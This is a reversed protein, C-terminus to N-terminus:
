KLEVVKYAALSDATNPVVFDAAIIMKELSAVEALIDAPVHKSSTPAIGVGDEALGYSVTSGGPFNGDNLDKSLNYIGNDVRKMASTLVNDPALDNQDRDVGIAWKGQEKAAEILGNGVGGAAHFIVDAGQQYMSNAISKGKAADTFSEAYQTLVEIDAGAQKVGAKFGYEFEEILFFKIGGIFGVKGTESMRGAIYGVLYSAQEAEFVVGVLNSPTDEFASDIIAYKQDPNNQAAELIADAMMFGIGWILDIDEDLASEMNPMYDANQKSEKYSVDIGLDKKARQLGEWASQNFSQDNVGGVDTVMTVSTKVVEVAKEEAPAAVEAKQKNCGVLTLAFVVALLISLKKM